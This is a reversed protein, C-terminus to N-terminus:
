YIMKKNEEEEKEKEEYARIGPLRGEEEKVDLSNSFSWTKLTYSLIATWQFWVLPFLFTYKYKYKYKYKYEYVSFCWSSSNIKGQIGQIKILILNKM